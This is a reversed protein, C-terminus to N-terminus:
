GDQILTSTVEPMFMGIGRRQSASGQGADQETDDHGGAVLSIPRSASSPDPEDDQLGLKTTLLGICYCWIGVGDVLVLGRKESFKGFVRRM